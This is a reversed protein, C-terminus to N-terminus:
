NFGPAELTTRPWVQPFIDCGIKDGTKLGPDRPPQPGMVRKAYTVDDGAYRIAIARRRRNSLSNGPSHHLTLLHHAIVDGPKTDFHVIDHQARESEFDPIEEFVDPYDDYKGPEFGKPKFWRGWKHSGKIWEVAGSEITVDDLPIWFSCVQKGDMWLYPQDHHWPVHNPTNPEKVFLADVALYAKESGLLTAAWQPVPSEAQFRRFMDNFTWMFIDYSFKGSEAGAMNKGAASPNSLVDQLADRLLQVWGTPLADRLCVVGDEDFAKKEAETLDRSKTTLM